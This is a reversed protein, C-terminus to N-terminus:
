PSYGPKTLGSASVIKLARKLFLYVLLIQLGICFVSLAGWHWLGAEKKNIVM